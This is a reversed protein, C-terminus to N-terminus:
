YEISVGQNNAQGTMMNAEILLYKASLIFVADLIGAGVCGYAAYNFNEVKAIDQFGSKFGMVYEPYKGM